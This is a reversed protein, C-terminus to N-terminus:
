ADVAYGDVAGYRYEESVPPVVGVLVQALAGNVKQFVQRGLLVVDYAQPLLHSQFQVRCGVCLSEYLQLVSIAVPAVTQSATESVFMESAVGPFRESLRRFRWALCQFIGSPLYFIKVFLFTPILMEYRVNRKM